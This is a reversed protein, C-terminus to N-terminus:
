SRLAASSKRLRQIESAFERAVYVAAEIKGHLGKKQAQFRGVM